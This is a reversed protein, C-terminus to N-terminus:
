NVFFNGRPNFELAERGGGLNGQKSQEHVQMRRNSHGGVLVPRALWTQLALRHLHFPSPMTSSSLSSTPAFWYLACTTTCTSDGSTAVLQQCYNGKVRECLGREAVLVAKRSLFCTLPLSPLKQLIFGHGVQASLM